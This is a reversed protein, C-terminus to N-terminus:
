ELSPYNFKFKRLTVIIVMFLGMIGIIGIPFEPVVSIVADTSGSYSTDFPKTKGTGLIEIEISVPGIKSFLVMQSDFGDEAYQNSKALITNGDVDFISLSYNVQELTKGNEPNIFQLEFEVPVDPEPKEKIDIIVNVEGNLTQLSLIEEDAKQIPIQRLFIDSTEPTINQWIAYFDDQTVAIHPGMVSLVSGLDNESINKTSGFDAGANSSQRFLVESNEGIFQNWVVFIKQESLAIQALGVRGSKSNLKIPHSFTEGNDQSKVFFIGPDDPTPNYWVIFISDGLLVMQTDRLIMSNANSKSLNIPSGFTKGDDISKAYFIEQTDNSKEQWVMHVNNGSVQIGANTSEAESNSINIPESFSTGYNNSMSFFIDVASETHQNWPVYINNESVFIRPNWAFATNSLNVTHFTKGEDWTKVFFIDM